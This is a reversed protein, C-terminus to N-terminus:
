GYYRSIVQLQSFLDHALVLAILTVGAAPGWRRGAGRAALALVAALLPLMPLLYRPEWFPYTGSTYSAAGVLALVGAGITAYVLLESARARVAVRRSLLERLLLAVLLAAPLLAVDDVWSPFVTDIWGYLGVLGNFWLQRTTFVGPFYNTMGPIRPLYLQWIYSIEALGPSHAAHTVGSSAAGLTSHVAASKVLAYLAQPVVALTVATALGAYAATRSGRPARRALLALGLLAGPLLGLFNLKTLLGTAATLGIAAGLSPTLGRRFARALLYYLVASVAFLMSDPNVAGSMFGLLPALAAGLGGVTWAWPTGPLAERVFLYAFLATLGAFLASLLRMLELRDLLSGSSALEYPITELAYFLPPEAAATGANGNGTGSLPLSLDHQLQRQQARSAITHAGPKFQVPYHHLGALAAEEEPSFSDSTGVPLHGAEALEQVYAFHSPEDPVQFPPSVLSWCVANLCAVAACLWAAHPIRRLPTTLRAVRATAQGRAQGTARRPARPRQSLAYMSAYAALATMISFLSALLLAVWTGSPARGLGLRRAVSLAQSWWSRSGPALYEIGMRGPLVSNASRAAIAPNTKHGLVGITERTQGLQSCITVDSATHTVRSVPVSVQAGTWGPNRTGSALQHGKDGRPGQSFVTVTVRPGVVAQLGLLLSSAGRPLTEGTQCVTAGGNGAAIISSYGVGNNALTQVPGGFMVIAATIAILALEVALVTRVHM